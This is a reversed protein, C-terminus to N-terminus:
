LEQLLGVASTETRGYSYDRVNVGNFDRIDVERDEPVAIVRFSFGNEIVHNIDKSV